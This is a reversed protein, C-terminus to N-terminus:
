SSGHHSWRGGLVQRSLMIWFWVRCCGCQHCLGSDGKIAHGLIAKFACGLAQRSLVQMSLLFCWCLRGQCAVEESLSVKGSSCVESSGVEEVRAVQVFVILHSSFSFGPSLLHFFSSLM